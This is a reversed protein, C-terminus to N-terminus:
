KNGSRPKKRNAAVLERSKRIQERILAIIEQTTM